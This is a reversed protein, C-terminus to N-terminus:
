REYHKSVAELTATEGSESIGFLLRWRRNIRISWVGDSKPELLEVRLGRIRYLDEVREASRLHEITKPLNRAVDKGHKREVARQNEVLQQLKKDRFRIDM